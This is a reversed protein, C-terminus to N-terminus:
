FNGRVSAEQRIRSIQQEVFESVDGSKRVNLNVKMSNIGLLAIADTESHSFGLNKLYM